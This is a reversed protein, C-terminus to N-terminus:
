DETFLGVSVFVNRVALVQGARVVEFGSGTDRRYYEYNILVQAQTEGITNLVQAQTEGITNM